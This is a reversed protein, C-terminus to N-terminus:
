DEVRRWGQPTYERQRRIEFVAGPKGLLRLTEHTDWARHHVVDVGGSQACGEGLQLYAVLPEGPARFMKTSLDDIAHHHGTESHTVIVKGAEPKVEETAAAPLARKRVFLVDGQAGIKKIEKM